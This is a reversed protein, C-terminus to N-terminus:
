AFSFDVRGKLINKAIHRLQIENAGETVHTM